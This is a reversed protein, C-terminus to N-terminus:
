VRRSIRGERRLFAQYNSLDLYRLLQRRVHERGRTDDDTCDKGLMVDAPLGSVIDRYERALSDEFASVASRKTMKLQWAAFIVGIATALSALDGFTM